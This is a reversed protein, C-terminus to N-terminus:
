ADHRFIQLELLSLLKLTEDVYINFIFYLSLSLSILLYQSTFFQIEM